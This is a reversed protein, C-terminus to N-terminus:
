AARPPYEGSAKQEAIRRNIKRMEVILFVLVTFIALFDSAPVAFYVADLSDIMPLIHPLTEPFILTLPILFLIQRTLSLIISKAPQGTAQFYNSGVIQFGIIPLFILNVRLAFAALAVLEADNIGFFNIVQPAFILILVWMVTGLITAGIIGVRLTTKVREWLRAGYNFGLLPQM